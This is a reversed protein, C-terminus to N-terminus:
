STSDYLERRNLISYMTSTATPASPDGKEKTALDSLDKLSSHAIIYSDVLTPSSACSPDLTKQLLIRFDLELHTVSNFECADNACPTLKVGAM